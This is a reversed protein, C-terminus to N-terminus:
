IIEAAIKFAAAIKLLRQQLKEYNEVFL